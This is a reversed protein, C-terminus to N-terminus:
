SGVRHELIHNGVELKSGPPWAVSGIVLGGNMYTGNTSNLDVVMVQDGVLSVRCHRRSVLPDSNLLWNSPERRGIVVPEAGLRIRDGPQPGELVVIFHEAL